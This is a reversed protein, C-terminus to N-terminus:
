NLKKLSKTTSSSSISLIDDGLSKRIYTLADISNNKGVTVGQYIFSNSGVITNEGINCDGSVRAGPLIIVNEAVKADHGISSNLNIICHSGIEVDSSVSVNAAIYSGEGVRCSPALYSSGNIITFPRMNIKQSFTFCDKRLKTDAFGIIYFNEHDENLCLQELDKASDNHFFVTAIASFENSYFQNAIELIEKATSCTGFIFLNKM